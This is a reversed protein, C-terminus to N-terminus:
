ANGQKERLLSVRNIDGQYAPFDRVKRDSGKTRDNTASFHIPSDLRRAFSESGEGLDKIIDLLKVSDVGADECWAILPEIEPTNIGAMVVVNVKM